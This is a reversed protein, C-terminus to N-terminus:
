GAGNIKKWLHDLFDPLNDSGNPWDAAPRRSKVLGTDVLVRLVAKEVLAIFRKWLTGAVLLIGLVGTLFGLLAAAFDM